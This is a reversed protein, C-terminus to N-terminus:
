SLFLVYFTIVSQSYFIDAFLTIITENIANWYLKYKMQHLATLKIPNILVNVYFFISPFM